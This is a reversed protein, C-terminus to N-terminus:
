DGKAKQKGRGEVSKAAIEVTEGYTAPSNLKVESFQQEM